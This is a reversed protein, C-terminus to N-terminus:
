VVKTSASIKRFVCSDSISFPEPGLSNPHTYEIARVFVLRFSSTQGAGHACKGDGSKRAGLSRPLARAHRGLTFVGIHMRNPKKQACGFPNTIRKKRADGEHVAATQAGLAYVCPMQAGFADDFAMAVM